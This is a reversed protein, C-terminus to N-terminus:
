TPQMPAPAQPPEKREPTASDAALAAIAHHSEAGGLPLRVCFAAGGLPHNTASVRGNHREVISRVIVLGLGLGAEKTSFFPEFLHNQMMAPIGPGSDHVVVEAYDAGSEARVMVSREFTAASAAELGNMALNLVVQELQVPDGVVTPPVPALSLELRVNRRTADHRLLRVANRCIDNLDVPTAVTKEKRLLKRVDEIVEVARKDDDIINQFIERAESADAAPRALLMAGVEANARIASLPQRLEHSLTAALEGVLAVRGMHAIQRRAEDASREQEAAASQALKRRRRELLLLGILLSEAIILGLTTLVVLRYRQWATADRFLVETGPPLSKESLEWRRMQRWDVVFPMPITEVPPMPAGPSRGLVRAILRGTRSGEDPFSIVAGGVLGEGVYGRLQTYMPAASARAMSGVIDSPDFAEGEHDQRFNAFIVISRPSLQRLKGLTTNLSLGRLLTVPISDRLRGVAAVAAAVSISDAAGAGGVVVVQEANPQLRRALAITPAFRAAVGLRGSVNAPLASADIQPSAGLAFVVPASPFVKTLHDLAFRLARGGVPVVLDIGFGRYKDAFYEVLSSSHERGTFRDLDLSEQYFEVPTALDDRVAARLQQAFAVMPQTEAQEQFLLLVRAPQTASQAAAKPALTSVSLLVIGLVRRRDVRLVPM